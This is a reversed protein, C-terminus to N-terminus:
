GVCARDCGVGTMADICGGVGLYKREDGLDVRRQERLVVGGLELVAEFEQEVAECACDGPRGSQSAAARQAEVVRRPGLRGPM